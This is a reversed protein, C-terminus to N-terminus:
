SWYALLQIKTHLTSPLHMLWTIHPCTDCWQNVESFVMTVGMLLGYGSMISALPSRCCRMRTNLGCKSILGRQFIYSKFEGATGNVGCANQSLFCFNFKLSFERGFIRLHNYPNIQRETHMRIVPWADHPILPMAVPPKTQKNVM